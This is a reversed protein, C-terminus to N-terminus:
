GHRSNGSCGFRFAIRGFPEGHQLRDFSTLRLSCPWEAIQGPWLLLSCLLPVPLKALAPPVIQWRPAAPDQNSYRTSQSHIRKSCLMPETQQANFAPDSRSATIRAATEPVLCQQIAASRQMRELPSRLGGLNSQAQEVSRCLWDNKRQNRLNGLEYVM